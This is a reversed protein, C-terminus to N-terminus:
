RPRKPPTPKPPKPKPAAARRRVRKRPPLPGPPAGGLAGRRELEDRLAGLYEAEARDRPRGTALKMRVLDDLSVIRVRSGYIDVVGADRGIDAYGSTGSPTGLVDLDGADTNFTFADGLGFSRADLRFPLDDPVGPGRLRAHLETLAAALRAHNEPTREYCIDLDGTLTPSGWAQGAIGGIM